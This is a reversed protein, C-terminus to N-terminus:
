RNLKYLMKKALFAFYVQDVSERQLSQRIQSKENPKDKPSNTEQGLFCKGFSEQITNQTLISTVDKVWALIQGM